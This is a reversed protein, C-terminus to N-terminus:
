DKSANLVEVALLKPQICNQDLVCLHELLQFWPQLVLHQVANELLLVLHEVKGEFAAVDFEHALDEAVGLEVVDHWLGFLVALLELGHGQRSPHLVVFLRDDFLGAIDWRIDVEDDTSLNVQHVFIAEILIRYEALARVETVDAEEKVLRLLERVEVIRVVLLWDQHQGDVGFLESLDAVGIGQRSLHQALSGALLLLNELVVFSHSQYLVHARDYLVWIYQLELLLALGGHLLELNGTLNVQLDSDHLLQHFHPQQM